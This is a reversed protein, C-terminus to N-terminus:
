DFNMLNGHGPHVVMGAKKDLVILDYDEYVIDLDITDPILLNEHSPLPYISLM